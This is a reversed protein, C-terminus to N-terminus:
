LRGIGDGGGEEGGGSIGGGDHVAHPREIEDQRLVLTGELAHVGDLLDFACRPRRRRRDLISSRCWQGRGGCQTELIYESGGRSWSGGEVVGNAIPCMM